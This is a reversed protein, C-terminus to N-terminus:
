RFMQMHYHVVCSSTVQKLENFLSFAKILLLSLEEEFLNHISETMDVRAGNNMPINFKIINQDIGIKGDFYAIETDTFDDTFILKNLVLAASRSVNSRFYHCILAISSETNVEPAKTNQKKSHDTPSNWEFCPIHWIQM